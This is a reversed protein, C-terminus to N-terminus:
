AGQKKQQRTAAQEGYHLLFSALSRREREAAAMLTAKLKPPLKMDFRATHTANMGAYMSHAYTNRVALEAVKKVQASVRTNAPETGTDWYDWEYRVCYVYAHTRLHASTRM